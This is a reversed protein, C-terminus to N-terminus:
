MSRFSQTACDYGGKKEPKKKGTPPSKPSKGNADPGFANNTIKNFAKDGTPNKSGFSAKKFAM